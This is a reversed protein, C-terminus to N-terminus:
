TYRIITLMVPLDFDKFDFAKDYNVLVRISPLANRRKALADIGVIDRARLTRSTIPRLIAAATDHKHDQICLIARLTHEEVRRLAPGYHSPLLIRHIVNPAMCLNPRRDPIHRKLQWRATNGRQQQITITRLRLPQKWIACQIPLARKRVPYIRRILYRNPHRSLGSCSSDSEIKNISFILLLTAIEM